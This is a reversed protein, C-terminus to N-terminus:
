NRFDVDLMLKHKQKLKYKKKQAVSVDQVIEFVPLNDGQLNDMLMEDLQVMQRKLDDIKDQSITM